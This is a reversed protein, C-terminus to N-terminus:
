ANVPTPRVLLPERSIWRAGSPKQFGSWPVGSAEIAGAVARLHYLRFNASVSVSWGVRRNCSPYTEPVEIRFAQWNVRRPSTRLKGIHLGGNREYSDVVFPFADLGFHRVTGLRGRLLVRGSKGKGDALVLYVLDQDYISWGTMWCRAAALLNCVTYRYVLSRGM